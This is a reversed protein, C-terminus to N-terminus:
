GEKAAQSQVKAKKKEQAKEILGNLMDKEGLTRMMQIILPV